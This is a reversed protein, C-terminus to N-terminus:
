PSAPPCRKGDPVLNRDLDGIEALGAQDLLCARQQRLFKDEPSREIKECLIMMADYWLGKEASLELTLIEVLDVMEIMGGAVIDQSPSDPDQQISVFWRYVTKEKLNVGFDKLRIVQIGPQKPATLPTELVPRVAQDERLTFIVPLSITQSIYWYLTPQAHSTWAVHDPVLAVVTPGQGLSGRTTGGIRARPSKGSPPKYVPLGPLLGESGSQAAAVLLPLEPQAYPAIPASVTLVPLLAVFFTWRSSTRM